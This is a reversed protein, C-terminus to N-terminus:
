SSYAVPSDVTVNSNSVNTCWKFQLNGDLPIWLMNQAPQGAAFSPLRTYKRDNNGATIDDLTVGSAKEVALLPTAAAKSIDCSCLAGKAGVPVNPMTVAASWTGATNTATTVVLTTSRQSYALYHITGLSPEGAVPSQWSNGAM